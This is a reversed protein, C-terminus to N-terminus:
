VCENYIRQFCINCCLVKTQITLSFLCSPLGQHLDCFLICMLISQLYPLSLFNLVWSMSMIVNECWECGYLSYLQVYANFRIRSFVYSYKSKHKAKQVGHLTFTKPTLASRSSPPPPPVPFERSCTVCGGTRFQTQPIQSSVIQAGYLIPITIWM